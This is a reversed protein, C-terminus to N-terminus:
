RPLLRRPPSTLDLGLRREQAFRVFEWQDAFPRGYHRQLQDLVARRALGVCLPQKLLNVLTQAPLPPPVPETAPQLLAPFTCLHAPGAAAGVVGTLARVRHSLDDPSLRGLVAGLGRELLKLAFADSADPWARAALLADAAKGAQAADLRGGLAALGQALSYVASPNNSKALAALLADAAKGAQAADLRGWVAGLGRALTSLANPDNSKALAALLADAAKGAQVADLRGLVAELV